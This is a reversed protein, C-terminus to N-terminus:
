YGPNLPVAVRGARLVGFYTVVFDVTNGLVIAVRDGVATRTALLHAAATVRSDVDAWTLTSEATILAPHDPRHAAAAAVPDRAPEDVLSSDPVSPGGIPIGCLRDTARRRTDVMTASTGQAAEAGSRVIKACRVQHAVGHTRLGHYKADSYRVGFGQTLDTM